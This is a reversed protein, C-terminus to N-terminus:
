IMWGKKKTFYPDWESSDSKSGQSSERARRILDKSIDVSLVDIKKGAEKPRRIRSVLVSVHKEKQQVQNGLLKNLMKALGNFEKVAPMLQDEDQKKLRKKAM